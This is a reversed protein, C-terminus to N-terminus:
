RGTPVFFATIALSSLPLALILNFYPIREGRFLNLLRGIFKEAREKNADILLILFEGGGFLAALDIERKIVKLALKGIKKLASDGEM